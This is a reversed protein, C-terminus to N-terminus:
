CGTPIKGANLARVWRLQRKTLLLAQITGRALPRSARRSGVRVGARLGLGGADEVDAPLGEDRMRDASDASPDTRRGGFEDLHRRPQQRSTHLRKGSVGGQAPGQVARQQKHAGDEARMGGQRVGIQDESQPALGYLVTGCCGGRANVSPSIRRRPYRTISMSTSWAQSSGCFDTVRALSRAVRDARKQSGGGCSPWSMSVIRCAALSCIKELTICTSWGRNKANAGLGLLKTLAIASANAPPNLTNVPTASSPEAAASISTVTSSQSRCIHPRGSDAPPTSTLPPEIAFRM